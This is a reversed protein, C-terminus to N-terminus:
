VGDKVAEKKARRRLGEIEERCQECGVFKKWVWEWRRMEEWYYDSEHIGCHACLPMTMEDSEWEHAPCHQPCYYNRTLDHTILFPDLALGCEECALLVFEHRPCGYLFEVIEAETGMKDGRSLFEAIMEETSPHHHGCKCTRWTENQVTPHGSYFEDHDEM